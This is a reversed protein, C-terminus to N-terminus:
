VRVVQEVAGRHKRRVAGVPRAPQGGSRNKTSPQQLEANLEIQPLGMVVRHTRIRFETRETCTNPSTTAEATASPAIATCASPASGPREVVRANRIDFDSM